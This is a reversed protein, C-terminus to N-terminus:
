TFILIAMEMATYGLVKDSKDAMKGVEDDRKKGWHVTPPPIPDSTNPPWLQPCM